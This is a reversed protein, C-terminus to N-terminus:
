GNDNKEMYSVDAPRVDYRNYDWSRVPRLVQESRNARDKFDAAQSDDWFLVRAQGCPLGLTYRVKKDPRYDTKYEYFGRGECEACGGGECELCQYTKTLNEPNPNWPESTPMHLEPHGLLKNTQPTLYWLKIADVPSYKMREVSEICAYSLVPLTGSKEPRAVGVNQGPDTGLFTYMTPPSEDPM